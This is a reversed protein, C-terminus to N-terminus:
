WGLTSRVREMGRTFLPVRKRFRPNQWVMEGNPDIGCLLVEAADDYVYCHEGAADFAIARGTGESPEYQAREECRDLDYIFVGADEGTSVFCGLAGDPSIAASTVTETRELRLVQAGTPSVFLVTTTMDRMSGGDVVVATGDNAIWGETPRDIPVAYKIDGDYLGFLQCQDDGPGFAAEWRNDPSQSVTCDYTRDDHKIQACRSHDPTFSLTSQDPTDATTSHNNSGFIRGLPMGDM